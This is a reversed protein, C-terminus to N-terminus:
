DHKGVTIGILNEQTVCVNNWVEKTQPKSAGAVSSLSGPLYTVIVPHNFKYDYQASKSNL